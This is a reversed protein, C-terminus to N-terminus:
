TTLGWRRRVWTEVRAFLFVEFVLGIFLTVVMVAFIQGAYGFSRGTDLLWGLGAATSILMEAGVLSRWAFSWCQKAGSVLPPLAAPIMVRTILGLGSSGMNRAALLHGPRVSKLADTFAIAVAFVSGIVTVFVLASETIGFWLIALPVWAISPLSQFGLLYPKVGRQVVMFRAMLLALVGGIAVSILFGTFLRRVTAIVARIMQGNRVLEVLWDLMVLPGVFANASTGGFRDVLEWLGILVVFLVLAPVAKTWDSPKAKTM